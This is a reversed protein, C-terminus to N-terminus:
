DPPQLQWVAAGPRSGTEPPWAATCSAAVSSTTVGSPWHAPHAPRHDSELRVPRECPKWRRNCNRQVVRGTHTRKTRTTGSRTAPICRAAACRAGTARTSFHIRVPNCRSVRNGFERPARFCRRWKLNESWVSETATRSSLPLWSKTTRPWGVAGWRHQRHTIASSIWLVTPGVGFGEPAYRSRRHLPQPSTPSIRPQIM